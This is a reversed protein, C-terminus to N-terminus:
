QNYINLAHLSQVLIPDLYFPQEFFADVQSSQYAACRPQYAFLFKSQSYLIRQYYTKMVQQGTLLLFSCAQQYKLFGHNCNCISFLLEREVNALCQCCAVLNKQHNLYLLKQFFKALLMAQQQHPQNPQLRRSSHLIYFHKKHQVVGLADNLFRQFFTEHLHDM